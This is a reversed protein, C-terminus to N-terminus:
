IGDLSCGDDLQALLEPHGLAALHIEHHGKFRQGFADLLEVEDLGIAPLHQIYAIGSEKGLANGIGISAIRLRAIPEDAKSFPMHYIIIGYPIDLEKIFTHQVQGHEAAFRVLEGMIYPRKFVFMFMAIFFYVQRM